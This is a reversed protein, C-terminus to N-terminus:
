ATWRQTSNNGSDTKQYLVYTLTLFKCTTFWTCNSCTFIHNYQGHETHHKLHGKGGKSKRTGLTVDMEMSTCLYPRSSLAHTNHEVAIMLKLLNTGQDKGTSSKRFGIKLQGSRSLLSSLSIIWESASENCGTIEPFFNGNWAKTVNLNKTKETASRVAWRKCLDQSKTRGLFSNRWTPASLVRLLEATSYRGYKPGM